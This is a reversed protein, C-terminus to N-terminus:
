RNAPEGLAAALPALKDGYQRSLLLSDRYIPRRVQGSSLTTVARETRYFELCSASWPLQCFNLLKRVETETNAVLEEYSLDYIFQPLVQHWHEMLGNYMSYYEGLETLDYAYDHEFFFSNKYISWCNDMPNRHCHIVLASPLILKIFGICFFNHPLKDTIFQQGQLGPQRSLRQLYEKGLAVWVEHDTGNVRQNFGKDTLSGVTAYIMEGLDRLEGAGFVLPHSALIQEVLSTGSRPMGLIFIPRPGKTTQSVGQRSFFGATFCNKLAAVKSAIVERNYPHTQRHLRNAEAFSAFAGDYDHQDELIKGQAFLLNERDQDQLSSGKLLSEIPSLYPSDLSHRKEFALMLHASSYRNDLALVKYMCAEWEAAPRGQQHLMQGLCFFAEIYEPRLAIAQRFAQEAEAFDGTARLMNGLNYWTIPYDPWKERAFKLLPLLEAERGPLFLRHALENIVEPGCNNEAVLKQALECLEQDRGTRLLIEAIKLYLQRNTSDLLLAQRYCLLAEALHGHQELVLGQQQLKSAQGGVVSSPFPKAPPRKNRALKIKAM